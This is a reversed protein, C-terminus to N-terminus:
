GAYEALVTFRSTSWLEVALGPFKVVFLLTGYDMLVAAWAYPRLAPVLVAGLALFIAGIFPVTSAHRGGRLPVLTLWNMLAVFGGVSILVKALASTGM